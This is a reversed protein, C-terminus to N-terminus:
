FSTAFAYGHDCNNLKPGRTITNQIFATPIPLSTSSTGHPLLQGRSLERFNSPEIGLGGTRHLGEGRVSAPYLPLECTFDGPLQRTQSPM